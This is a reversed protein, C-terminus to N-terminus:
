PSSPPSSQTPAEEPLSSEQVNNAGEVVDEPKGWRKLTRERVKKLKHYKEDEADLADRVGFLNITMTRGKAALPSVDRNEPM